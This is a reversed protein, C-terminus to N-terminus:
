AKGKLADLVIQRQTENLDANGNCPLVELYTGLRYLANDKAAQSDAQKYFQKQREIYKDTM